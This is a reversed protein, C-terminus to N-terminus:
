LTIGKRSGTLPAGCAGPSRMLRRARLEVCQDVM